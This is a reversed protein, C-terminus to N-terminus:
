YGFIDPTNLRSQKGVKRRIFARRTQKRRIGKSKNARKRSTPKRKKNKKKKKNVSRKQVKFGGGKQSLSRRAVKVAKNGVNRGAERARKKM